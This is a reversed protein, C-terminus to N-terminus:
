LRLLPPLLDAVAVGGWAPLLATRIVASEDLIEEVWDSAGRTMQRLTRAELDVVWYEAVGRRFYLGRKAVLDRREAEPGPSLVEVVLNPAGRLKDQLIAM